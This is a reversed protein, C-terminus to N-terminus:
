ATAPPPRICASSRIPTTGTGAPCHKRDIIAVTADSHSVIEDVFAMGVGGAGAVVYDTEIARAMKREEIHVSLLTNWAPRGQRSGPTHVACRVWHVFFVSVPAETPHVRKLADRWGGRRDHEIRGMPSAPAHRSICEPQSPTCIPLGRPAAVLPNCFM